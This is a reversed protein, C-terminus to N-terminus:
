SRSCPRWSSCASGPATAAAPLLADLFGPVPHSGLVSDVAIKLPIPSLLLMPTELLGVIFLMVLRSRYPRGEHLIRRSLRTPAPSPAAAEAAERTRRPKKAAPKPAAAPRRAPEIKTTAAVAMALRRRLLIAELLIGAAAIAAVAGGIRPWVLGLGASAAVAFAAPWRLRFRVRWRHAEGWSVATTVRCALLPGARVELDWRAFSDGGRVLCRRRALDRRLQEVWAGRDALGDHTADTPKAPRGRIRGWTRALPQAVHLLGVLVRFLAPHTEARTGPVAFAIATGYALLFAVAAIAPLLWWRSLPALGALLLIPISVPLLAGAWALFSASRRRVVGQFPAFGAPGHYVIPRLLSPLVRPGGYISGAWRAQGLRNARHRHRGSVVREAKGYTRQQRLYGRVTGRRHHLVQAAPAFAIQHGADLVRWCVDVDDGAATFIPDFGGIAELVDRRFAINCGPVHEARDDSLLVHIPGGPSHAVAREVFRAGPVPLNPGGAAAVGPDEFALALHYPWEPHCAADADLYAVIDGTAASHGANRAVSLGAHPLDLVTFPFRRAIELTRDTSGDNCVIVELGPYDCAELSRLCELIHSEENYACVIASVRPWRERLDRTRTRAWASVVDHAPKPERTETTVGFGWGEIPYGGVFWEDTWSFVIAGACGAEDVARLQGELLAAQADDGHRAGALGLETVVLPLDGAVVQLHRLYSRFSTESELFVNFSVFDQGPVDLYETTPYNCYTALLGADHVDDILAALTEEVSRIGHLRVLDGPVENGVAIALVSDRGACREVAEDVAARGADRVGRRTARSPRGATRWDAYNLGVLVRLGAEDARDLLDAPPLTYTRVVNIGAAVMARFDSEIQRPEPFGSGDDRPRFGGYTVGRIHFPAGDLELHKGDAVVRAQKPVSALRSDSSRLAPYVFDRPQRM